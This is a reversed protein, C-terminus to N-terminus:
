SANYAPNVESQSISWFVHICDRSVCPQGGVLRPIATEHHYAELMLFSSAGMVAAATEKLATAARGVHDYAEVPGDVPRM